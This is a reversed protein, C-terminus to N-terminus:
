IVFINISKTTGNRRFQILVRNVENSKCTEYMKVFDRFLIFPLYHINMRSENRGKAAVMIIAILHMFGDDVIARLDGSTRYM